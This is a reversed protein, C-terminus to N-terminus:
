GPGTTSRRPPWSLCAPCVGSMNRLRKRTLRMRVSGIRYKEGCNCAHNPKSATRRGPLSHHRGDQGDDDVRVSAPLGEIPFERRQDVHHEKPCQSSIRRPAEASESRGRSCAVRRPDARRASRPPLDPSRGSRRPSHPVGLGDPSRRTGLAACVMAQTRSPGGASQTATDWEEEGGDICHAVETFSKRLKGAAASHSTHRPSPSVVDSPSHARDDFRCSM